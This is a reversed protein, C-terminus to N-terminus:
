HKQSIKGEQNISCSENGNEARITATFQNSISELQLSYTLGNEKVTEDPLGLAALTSAYRGHERIYEHQKYYIQWLYEKAQEMAPLPLAIDPSGAPQKVFFLYGWKEPAHMNIIGQPSWVWNHEPLPKGTAKNRRKVYQGNVIDADWEVRSFNIRWSSSDKPGATRQNYFGFASFPIAMEVTWKKDKDGPKNLTGDIHVATLMGKTDWNMLADGGIRYPRPMFLDMITNHPNIEIEFYEHTDGDPDVFIEFDNDQFIITDHQHLTAWINEDELEAFIYLYRSDWLMKLRTRMPPEPQKDGEIDTFDDSWATQQWAKEDPKGDLKIPTLTQYCHYQRPAIYAPKLQANAQSLCVVGLATLVHRILQSM